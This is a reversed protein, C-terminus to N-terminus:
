VGPLTFSVTTGEKVDPQLWIEGDHRQVIKKSITLGAGVGPLKPNLKRFISFVDKQFRPDIGIGNDHINYQVHGDQEEGYISVICPKDECRFQIANEILSAFVKTIQAQDGYVQPISGYFRFYVEEEEIVEEFDEAVYSLISEVDCPEFDSGQTTVRSLTLLANQMSEIRNICNTFHYYVVEQDPHTTSKAFDTLLEGFQKIGNIANKFDHSVIYVFDEHEKMIEEISHNSFKTNNAQPTM